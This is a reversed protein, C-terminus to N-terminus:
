AAEDKEPPETEASASRDAMWSAITVVGGTAREIKAALPLSPVMLARCLKSVTAQNVSIEGAFDAQTKGVLKLHSALDMDAVM